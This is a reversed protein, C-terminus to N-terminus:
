FISENFQQHYLTKIEELNFSHNQTGLHEVKIAGILGALQGCTKWDFENIM